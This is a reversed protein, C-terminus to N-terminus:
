QLKERYVYGTDPDEIFLVSGMEGLGLDFVTPVFFDFQLGSEDFLNKLKAKFEKKFDDRGKCQDKTRKLRNKEQDLIEEWLTSRLAVIKETLQSNEVLAQILCPAAFMLYVKSKKDPDYTLYHLLSPSGEAGKLMSYFVYQLAEDQFTLTSLEDPTTFSTTEEKLAILADLIRYEDGPRYFSAEAYLHRMLRAGVEYTSLPYNKAANEHILAEMNLRSGNPPRSLNFKLSASRRIAPAKKPKRPKENKEEVTEVKDKRFDELAAFSRLEEATALSEQYHARFHSGIHGQSFRAVESSTLVSMLMLFTLTILYPNM